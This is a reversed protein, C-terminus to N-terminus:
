YDTELYISSIDIACALATANNCRWARPALLTTNLPTQTGPTGPTIVGEVAFATGIREIRYYVTGNANPPAFLTLDYFVGATASVTGNFPPYNTGLAIATQAASGGYVLYLQTADTSLQALGISNTLTNPEVNTPAALSSSLGVFARVGSVAAADSFGFRTSFFFGGLGTGDGTTVQAVTQYSGCLSGATAAAVYALRRARTFANTTTVTRATATGVATVAGMGDVGPVTTVGPAANWRGVKQRWISPQLAADMGSFCVSAPLMRGALQKGFLKTRGAVPTVPATNSLLALDSSDAYLNAPAALSTGGNAQLQGTSGAPTMGVTGSTASEAGFTYYPIVQSFSVDLYPAANVAVTCIGIIPNLSVTAAPKTSSTIVQESWVTAGTLMDILTAQIAGGPFAKIRAYVHMSAALSFTTDTRTLTTGDCTFLALKSGVGDSSRWGFYIGPISATLDGFIVGNPALNMGFQGSSGAIYSTTGFAAEWLFGGNSGGVKAIGPESNSTGGTGVGVCTYTAAAASYRSFPMSGKPTDSTDPPNYTPASASWTNTYGGTYSGYSSPQSRPTYTAIPLNDPWLALASGGGATKFTGDDALFLNGAGAAGSGLVAPPLTDGSALMQLQGAVVTLPRRQTM